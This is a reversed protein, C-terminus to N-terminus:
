CWGWQSLSAIRRLKEERSLVYLSLHGGVTDYQGSVDELGAASFTATEIGAAKCRAEAEKAMAASIDSASVQGCV